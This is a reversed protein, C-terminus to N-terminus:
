EENIIETLEKRIEPTINILKDGELKFAFVHDIPTPTQVVTYGMRRTENIDTVTKILDNKTGVSFPYKEGDFKLNYLLQMHYPFGFGILQGFVEPRAVDFYFISERDHPFDPLEQMLQSYIKENLGRPRISLQLSFFRNVASAQILMIIVLMSVPLIYKFKVQFKSVYKSFLGALILSMGVGPVINYRHVVEMISGPSYLWPFLFSMLFVLGTLYYASIRWKKQIVLDVIKTFIVTFLVLGVYTNVFFHTHQLTSDLQYHAILKLLVLFLFPSFYLLLKLWWKKINNVVTVFIIASILLVLAFLIFKRLPYVVFGLRGLIPLGEPFLMMGLSTFPTLIWDVKGQSLMKSVSSFGSSILGANVSQFGMGPFFYKILLFPLFMLSAKFFFMALKVLKINKRNSFNKELALFFLTFPLVFLRIIVVLYGLIILSWALISERRSKGDIFYYLGVIAM